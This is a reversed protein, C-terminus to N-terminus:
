TLILLLLVKNAIGATLGGPVLDNGLFAESGAAEIETVSFM